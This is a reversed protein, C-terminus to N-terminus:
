CNEIYVVDSKYLLASHQLCLDACVDKGLAQFFGVSAGAITFDIFCSIKFDSKSARRDDVAM